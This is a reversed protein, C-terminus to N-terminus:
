APTDPAATHSNALKQLAGHLRSDGRKAAVAIATTYFSSRQKASGRMGLLVATAKAIRQLVFPPLRNLTHRAPAVAFGLIM